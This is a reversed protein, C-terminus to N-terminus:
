LYIHNDGDNSQKKHPHGVSVVGFGKSVKGGLGIGQPLFVNTRFTAHFSCLRVGKVRVARPGDLELLEVELPRDVHWGIGKAFSLINGRLKTELYAARAALGRMQQYDKWSQQNLAICHRIRYEFDQELVQIHYQRMELQEIKMGLRCGSIQLSWDTQEFYHHIEEVGHGLCLIMPKRGMCKYQILPYAYRYGEGQHNHFLIHDHGVKDAVAGRFALVEYPTIEDGFVVRLVKLEVLSDGMNTKTEEQAERIQM